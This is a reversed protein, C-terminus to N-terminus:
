NQVITLYNFIVVKDLALKEFKEFVPFFVKKIENAIDFLM